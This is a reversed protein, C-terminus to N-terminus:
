RSPYFSKLLQSPSTLLLMSGAACGAAKLADKGLPQGSLYATSLGLGAGAVGALTVRRVLENRKHQNVSAAGNWQALALRSILILTGIAVPVGLYVGVDKTTSNFNVGLM